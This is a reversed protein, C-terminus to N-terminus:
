EQDKSKEVPELAPPYVSDNVRYEIRPAEEEEDDSQQMIMAQSMMAKRIIENTFERVELEACKSQM